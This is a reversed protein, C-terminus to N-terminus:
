LKSESDANRIVATITKPRGKETTVIILRHRAGKKGESEKDDSKYAEDGPLLMTFGNKSPNLSQPAM